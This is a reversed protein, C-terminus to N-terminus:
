VRRRDTMVRLICGTGAVDVLEKHWSLLIAPNTESANQMGKYLYKMLNDQLTSPLSQLLAASPKTSSLISLVSQLTLSKAEEAHPGYPPQDLIVALATVFDGRSLSSRVEGIKGRTIQAVEDPSRPDPDYLDEPTVQDEEYQDIDLKRFNVSM